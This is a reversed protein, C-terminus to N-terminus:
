MLASLMLSAIMAGVLMIAIIIAIIKNRNKIKNTKSM